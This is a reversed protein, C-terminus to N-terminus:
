EATSWLIIEESLRSLHMMTLAAAAEFDVLFDRDSVADLSNASIRSFGLEKAVFERDIPYPVGALAGSGLPLVDARERAQRFRDRDRELMEFYALLHHALLVPQARQLHTYGPMVVGQHAEALSVLARQLGRLKELAQGIVDKAYLRMDLAIQDNRSRATHLRAGAEGIKETLRAEISMHIDERELQFPFAGKDIEERISVLGMIILEAEKDSIIGQRALMRAHAISGAIDQKYLRRDFPLSATYSLAKPDM